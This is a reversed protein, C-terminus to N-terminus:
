SKLIVLFTLLGQSTPLGRPCSFKRGESRRAIRIGFKDKDEAFLKPPLNSRWGQDSCPSCEKRLEVSIWKLLRSSSAAESEAFAYPPKGPVSRGACILPNVPVTSSVM